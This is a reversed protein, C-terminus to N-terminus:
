ESELKRILKMLRRKERTLDEPLVVNTKGSLYADIEAQVQDLEKRAEKLTMETKATGPGTNM